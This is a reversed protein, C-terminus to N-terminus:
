NSLFYKEVIMTARAHLTFDGGHLVELLSRKERMYVKAFNEDAVLISQSNHILDALKITKAKDCACSLWDRDMGKRLARNGNIPESVDTLQNVLAAVVVGFEDKIDDLCVYCDEITDHLLAAAIMEEDDSVTKVIESVAIPHTIYPEGTYKRVQGDHAETAFEIARQELNM